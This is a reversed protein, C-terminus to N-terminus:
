ILSPMGPMRGTQDSDQSDARQTALTMRVTFVRILRPPHGAQYSDKSPACTMKNSKTM